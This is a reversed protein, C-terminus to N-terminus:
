LGSGIAPRIPWGLRGALIRGHVPVAHRPPRGGGDDLFQFQEPLPLSVDRAGIQLPMIYNMMGTVFPMAMFFIMIAGHATFMQDLPSAPLYGESAGVSGLAKQVSMMLADAFGRLLM